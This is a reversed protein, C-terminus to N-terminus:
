KSPQPRYTRGSNRGVHTLVMSKGSRLASPNFVKITKGCWLPMPM